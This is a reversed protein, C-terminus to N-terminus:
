ASLCELIADDEHNRHTPDKNFCVNLVRCCIRMFVYSVHSYVCKKTHATAHESWTRFFDPLVISMSSMFKFLKPIRLSRVYDFNEPLFIVGHDRTAFRQCLSLELITAIITM